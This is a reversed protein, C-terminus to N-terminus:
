ASICVEKEEAADELQTHRQYGIGAAPKRQQQQLVSVTLDQLYRHPATPTQHVPAVNADVFVGTEM